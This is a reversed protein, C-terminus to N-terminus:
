PQGVIGNAVVPQFFQVQLAYKNLFGGFTWDIAYLSCPKSPTGLEECQGAACPATRVDHSSSQSIMHKQKELM